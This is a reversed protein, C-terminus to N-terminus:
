GWLLIGVLLGTLVVVYTEFVSRLYHPASKLEMFYLGVLRVKIGAVLLVIVGGCGWGHETGTIWSVVTLAVLILWAIPVDTTALARM